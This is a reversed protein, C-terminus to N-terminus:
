SLPLRLPQAAGNVLLILGNSQTVPQKIHFFLVGTRAEQAALTLKKPLTISQLQELTQQRGTKAYVRVGEFQMVRKLFGKADLPSFKKGSADQLAFTLSKTRENARNAIRVDVAVIGALPLNAEFREFAQDDNTVASATVELLNATATQGVVSPPSNPLPAVKYLPVSCAGGLVLGLISM